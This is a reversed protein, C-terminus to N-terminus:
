KLIMRERVGQDGSRYNGEHKGILTKFANTMQGICAVNGAGRM